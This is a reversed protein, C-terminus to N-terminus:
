ETLIIPHDFSLKRKRVILDNTVADFFANTLYSELFSRESNETSRNHQSDKVRTWTTSFFQFIRSMMWCRYVILLVSDSLKTWLVFVASQIEPRSVSFDEIKVLFQDIQTETKRVSFNKVCTGFNLQFKNEINNTFRYSLRSDLLYIRTRENRTKVRNFKQEDIKKGYNTLHRIAEVISFRLSFLHKRTSSRFKFNTSGTRRSTVANKFAVVLLNREDSTLKKKFNLVQRMQTLMDEYRFAKEALRARYILDDISKSM